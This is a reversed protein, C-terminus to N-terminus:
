LILSSYFIVKKKHFIFTAPPLRAAFTEQFEQLTHIFTIEILAIEVLIEYCNRQKAKLNSKKSHKMFIILLTCIASLLFVFILHLNAVFYIRSPHRYLSTTAYFVNESYFFISLVTGAESGPHVTAVLRDDM